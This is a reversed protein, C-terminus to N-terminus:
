IITGFSILIVVSCYLMSDFRDLVGGHGPLIKGMDKVGCERKIASEFLDGVQAMLSTVLGVLVFSVLPPFTESRVTLFIDNFRTYFVDGNIGGLFYMLYYVVIAALVGGILGGVAGIVTKNPSLQPALKLPAVKKLSSGIIYAGSDTLVPVMFVLLIAAMSNEGLHNIASLLASLVGCYLMCFVCYITGKVSSKKHDFVSTAALFMVYATFACSIALLGGEMAMEVLAYLPVAMACFAMTIAHQPYSIKCNVGSESRSIARMFEYAGLVSVATFCVDFGISGWGGAVNGAPVCWKLACMAVWVVIYCVSTIIRKQLSTLKKKNNGNDAPVTGAVQQEEL